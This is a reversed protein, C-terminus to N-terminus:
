HATCELSPFRPSRESRAHLTGFGGHGALRRSGATENTGTVRARGLYIDKANVLFRVWSLNALTDYDWLASQCASRSAFAPAKFDHKASGSAALLKRACLDERTFKGEQHGTTVLACVLLLRLLLVRGRSVAGRRCRPM